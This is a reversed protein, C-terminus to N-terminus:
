DNKAKNRKLKEIDITPGSFEQKMESLGPAAPQDVPQGTLMKFFDGKGDSLKNGVFFLGAQFIIMGLLRIEVPLDSGWSNYSKEGLEILLRDYHNMSRMQSQAYGTLNIGILQTCIYEMGVFGAMIYSRYNQITDDLYLERKTRDYTAKMLNLDSHENFLPTEVNPYQKKMIYFRWIYEQKKKAEIQEPTLGAYMEDDGEEFDGEEFDDGDELDDDFDVEESDVDSDGLENLINEDDDDEDEEDDFIIKNKRRHRDKKSHKDKKSRKGHKDRKSHKDRKRHKYNNEQDSYDNLSDSDETNQNPPVIQKPPTLPLGSKLKKKNEILELHLNQLPKFNIPIDPLLKDRPKLTIKLFKIM